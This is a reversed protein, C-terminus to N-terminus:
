METYSPLSYNSFVDVRQGLCDHSRKPTSKNNGSHLIPNLDPFNMKVQNTGRPTEQLVRAQTWTATDDIRLVM